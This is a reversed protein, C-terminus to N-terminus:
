ENTKVKTAPRYNKEIFAQIDQMKLCVRGGLKVAPLQGGYIWKRITGNKVRLMRAVEPITSLQDIV